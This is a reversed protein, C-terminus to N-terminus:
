SFPLCGCLRLSFAKPSNKPLILCFDDPSKECRFVFFFSLGLVREKEREGESAWRRFLFLVRERM